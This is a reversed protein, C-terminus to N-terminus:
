NQYIGWWKACEEQLLGLENINEHHSLKESSKIKAEYPESWKLRCLLLLAFTCMNYDSIHLTHPRNTAEKKFPEHKLHRTGNTTWHGTALAPLIQYTISLMKSSPHHCHIMQCRCTFNPIQKILWEVLTNLWKSWIVAHLWLEVMDNILVNNPSVYYKM